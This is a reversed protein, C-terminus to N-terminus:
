IACADCDEDDTDYDEYHDNSISDIVEETLLIDEDTAYLVVAVRYLPSSLLLLLIGGSVLFLDLNQDLYLRM